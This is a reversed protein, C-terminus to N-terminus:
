DRSAFRPLADRASGRPPGRANVPAAPRRRGARQSGTRQGGDRTARYPYPAHPATHAGEFRATSFRAGSRPTAAPAAARRGPRGTKARAGGRGRGGLSGGGRMAGAPRRANLSFICFGVSPGSHASGGREGITAAPRPSTWIPASCALMYIKIYSRGYAVTCHRQDQHRLHPTPRLSNCSHAMQTAGHSILAGVRHM